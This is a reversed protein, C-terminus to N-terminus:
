QVKEWQTLYAFLERLNESNLTDALGAPLLSGIMKRSAIGAVALTCGPAGAKALGVAPL